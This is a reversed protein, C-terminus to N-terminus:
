RLNEPSFGETKIAQLVFSQLSAWDRLYAVQGTKLNQVKFRWKAEKEGNEEEWDRVLFSSSAKGPSYVSETEDM